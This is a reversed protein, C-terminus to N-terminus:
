IFTNKKLLLFSLHVLSSFIKSSCLSLSSNHNPHNSISWLSSINGRLRLPHVHTQCSFFPTSISLPLPPLSTPPNQAFSIPAQLAGTFIGLPRPCPHGPCLRTEPITPAPAPLMSLPLQGSLLAYGQSAPPFRSPSLTISSCRGSTIQM